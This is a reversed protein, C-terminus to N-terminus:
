IQWIANFVATEPLTIAALAAVSVIFLVVTVVATLLEKM